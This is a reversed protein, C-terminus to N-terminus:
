KRSFYVDRKISIKTFSAFFLIKLNITIETFESMLIYNIQLAFRNIFCYSSRRIWLIEYFNQGAELQLNAIVKAIGINFVKFKNKDM